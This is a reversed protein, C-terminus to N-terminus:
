TKWYPMPMAAAAASESAIRVSPSGARSRYRVKKRAPPETSGITARRSAPM